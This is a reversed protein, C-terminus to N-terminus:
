AFAFGRESRGVSAFDWLLEVIVEARRRLQCADEVVEGGAQQRVTLEPSMGSRQGLAAGVRWTM